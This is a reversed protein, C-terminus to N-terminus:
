VVSVVEGETCVEIYGSNVCEDRGFSRLRVRLRLWCPTQADKPWRFGRFDGRLVGLYEQPDNRLIDIELM